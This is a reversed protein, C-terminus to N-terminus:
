IVYKAPNDRVLKWSAEEGVILAAAERAAALKPPRSKHNHADSAIISVWDYRLLEEACAKTEAGFTGLLSSSTIQILCGLQVFVQLKEISERIERNREPHVIMAKIGKQQLWQVFKDSGPPVHTFPFELLMVKLGDLEGVFPIADQAIMGMVEPDIHVEAGVRVDLPINNEQLATKFESLVIKISNLDNDFRGLHIHPTAVITKIGDDVAMQAMVLSEAMDKSGDDIGPLIHCHSDIM